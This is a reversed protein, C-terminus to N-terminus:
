HIIMPNRFGSMMKKTVLENLSDVNVHLNMIGTTSVRYRTTVLSFGTLNLMNEALEKNGGDINVRVNFFTINLRDSSPRTSYMDFQTAGTTIIKEAAGSGIKDLNFAFSPIM